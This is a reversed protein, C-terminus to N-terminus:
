NSMAEEELKKAKATSAKAPSKRKLFKRGAQRWVEVTPNNTEISEICTLIGGVLADFDLDLVNKKKLVKTLSSLIKAETKEQEAQLAAIKSKADERKRIAHHLM